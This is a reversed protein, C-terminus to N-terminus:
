PNEPREWYVWISAFIAALGFLLAGKYGVTYALFASAGCGFLFATVWVAFMWQANAAQDDMIKRLAFAVPVIPMASFVIWSCLLVAGNVLWGKGLVLIFLVPMAVVFFLSVGITALLYIKMMVSPAEPKVTFAIWLAPVFSILAAPAAFFTFLEVFGLYFRLVHLAMAMLCATGFGTTAFFIIKRISHRRWLRVPRAGLMPVFVVLLLFLGCIAFQHRAAKKGMAAFLASPSPYDARYGAHPATDFFNPIHDTPPDLRLKSKDIFEQLDAVTIATLVTSKENNSYPSYIVGLKESKCYDLLRSVDPITFEENKIMVLNSHADTAIFFYNDPTRTQKLALVERGLIVMRLLLDNSNASFQVALAGSKTLSGMSRYVTEVTLLNEGPLSFPAVLIEKQSTPHGFHILSYRAQNITLFARPNAQIIEAGKATVGLRKALHLSDIWQVRSAGAAEAALAQDAGQPDFLLVKPQHLVQFPLSFLAGPAGVSDAGPYFRERDVGDILLRGPNATDKILNTASYARVIKDAPLPYGKARSFNMFPWIWQVLCLILLIALASASFHRPLKMDTKVSSALCAGAAVAAGFFVVAIEGFVPVLLAFFFVGVVSGCLWATLAWLVGKSEEKFLLAVITGISFYIGSALLWLFVLQVAQGASVPASGIRMLLLAAGAMVMLVCLIAPATIFYEETKDQPLKQGLWAVGVIAAAFACMAPGMILMPYGPWLMVALARTAGYTFLAGAASALFLVLFFRKNM